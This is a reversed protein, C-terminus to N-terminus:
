GASAVWSLKPDPESLPIHHPQSNNRLDSYNAGFGSLHHWLRAIYSIARNFPTRCIPSINPTEIDGDSHLPSILHECFLLQKVFTDVEVFYSNIVFNKHQNWQLWQLIVTTNVTFRLHGRVRSQSAIKSTDRVCWDILTIWGHMVLRRDSIRIPNRCSRPHDENIVRSFLCITIM